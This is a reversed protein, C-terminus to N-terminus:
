SCIIKIEYPNNLGVNQKNGFNLQVPFLINRLSAIDKIASQHNQGLRM